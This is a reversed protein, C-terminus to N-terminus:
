GITWKNLTAKIIKGSAAASQSSLRKIMMYFHRRRLASGVLGRGGSKLKSLQLASVGTSRAAEHAAGVALSGVLAGRARRKCGLARQRGMQRRRIANRPLGTDITEFNSFM